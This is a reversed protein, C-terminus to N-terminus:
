FWSTSLSSLQPRTMQTFTRTALCSLLPPLSFPLSGRASAVLAHPLSTRSLLASHLRPHHLRLDQGELFCPSQLLFLRSPANLSLPSVQRGEMGKPSTPSSVAELQSSELLSTKPHLLSLIPPLIDGFSTITMCVKSPSSKERPPLIKVKQAQRLQNRIFELASYEWM